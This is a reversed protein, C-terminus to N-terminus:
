AEGTDEIPDLREEGLGEAAVGEDVEHILQEALTRRMDSLEALVTLDSEGELPYTYRLAEELPVVACLARLAALRVAPEQDSLLDRLNMAVAPAGIQALADSAAIRVGPNNDILLRRVTVAWDKRMLKQAAVCLGITLHPDAGVRAARVLSRLGSEGLEQLTAVLIDQDAEAVQGLLALLAPPEAPLTAPLQVPEPAVWAVTEEQGWWPQPTACPLKGDIRSMAEDLARQVAEEEEGERTRRLSVLLGPGATHGLLTAAGARMRPDAHSLLRRLRSASGPDVVQQLYSLAEFAIDPEADTLLDRLLTVGDAGHSVAARLVLARVEPATDQSLERLVSLAWHGGIATTVRVASQREALSGHRAARRARALMRKYQDYARPAEANGSAIEDYLTDLPDM